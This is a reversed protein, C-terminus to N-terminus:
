ANMVSAPALNAKGYPSGIRLTNPDVAALVVNVPLAKIKGNSEMVRCRILEHIDERGMSAHGGHCVIIMKRYLPLNGFKLAELWALMRRVKIEKTEFGGNLHVMGNGNM